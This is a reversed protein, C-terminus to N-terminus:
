NIYNGNRIGKIEQYQDTNRNQAIQNRTTPTHQAKIIQANVSKMLNLFNKVIIKELCEKQGRGVKPNGIVSINPEKFNDRLDVIISQTKQKSNERQKM